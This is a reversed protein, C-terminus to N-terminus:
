RINEAIRREIQDRASLEQTALQLMLNKQHMLDQLQIMRIQNQSGISENSTRLSDIVKGISSESVKGDTGCVRQLLGHERLLADATTVQGDELHVQVLTMTQATAEKYGRADMAAYVAQLVSVQELLERSRQSSSRLEDGAMSIGELLPDLNQATELAIESGALSDYFEHRDTSASQLANVSM